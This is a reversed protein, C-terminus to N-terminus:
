LNLLTPLLLSSSYIQTEEFILFYGSNFFLFLVSLFLVKGEFKHYQQDKLIPKERFRIEIKELIGGKKIDNM